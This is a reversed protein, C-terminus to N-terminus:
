VMVGFRNSIEALLRALHDAKDRTMIVAEHFSCVPYKGNEDDIGFLEKGMMMAVELCKDLTMDIEGVIEKTTTDRKTLVPEACCVDSANVYNM